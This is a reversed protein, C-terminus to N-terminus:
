YRQMAPDVERAWADVGGALSTTQELGRERLFRTVQLSRAGHHCTVVVPRDQPLYSWKGAIEGMPILLSDPIQCIATEYPERVDLVAAGADILRRGQEVDVELPLDDPATTGPGAPPEPEVACNIAAYHEPDLRTITPEHGCCPCGPDKKLTLTRFAMGLADVVLLRGTLSAGVGAILKIAEMAQLSGIVGCLAGFVGAEECNPVTGPEPPQPFLCRYCPAGNAPDFVSVQGEFQFLSGYILPKGALVCADNVLYRTPFNDSGDVVLDYDALLALANDPAIGAPHRNLTVEPNLAQLKEAASDLKPRGIGPTDHLIQRQLNHGEITDFDALGLTGVGAAALYLAAPSGLGGMGILLVRAEALRQQGALGIQPLRIHRSYRSLAEPSFIPETSESM